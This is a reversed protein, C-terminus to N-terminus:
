LQRAEEHEGISSLADIYWFTCINFANEPLGFDDEETYRLLYSGRKLKKGIARVTSIFKPDMPEIFKVEAMLLLAADMDHSEGNLTAVFSQQSEDWGRELVYRKIHDAHQRWYKQRDPKNLVEAIFCLRDCAVWCMVSSFTHIRKAGRLEWLGSDPKDYLELAQHGLLEMSQFLQEDGMISVRSDVFSQCVAMIISGANDNQMQTYAGNGSRVPGMGRYGALSSMHREVLETQFLMGYLPQLNHDCAAVVNTIFRCLNGDFFSVGHM